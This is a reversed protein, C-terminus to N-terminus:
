LGASPTSASIWPAPPTLGISAGCAVARQFRLEGVAPELRDRALHEASAKPSLPRAPARRMKLAPAPTAARCPSPSAMSADSVPARAIGLAALLDDRVPLNAQTQQAM